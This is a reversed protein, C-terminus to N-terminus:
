GVARRLATEVAHPLDLPLFLKEPYLYDGGSEDIV